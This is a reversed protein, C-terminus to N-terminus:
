EDLFILRARARTWAVYQLNREQEQQWDQRAWRAPILDPRLIAVQPWERGKAKHITSLTLRGVISDGFLRDLADKLGELTLEAEGLHDIITEICDVRDNIAEAKAPQERERYKQSERRRYEELKRGLDDLSGPRLRDVLQQLGTGIDRGLLQCPVGAAILQYALTVLPANNRCLVADAPTLQQQAQRVTLHEVSGALADPAPEIMPVLAQAYEVISRACRYCISLPLSVAQWREQILEIADHSAGTFGYIAQHPDGVALVRGNPALSAVLMARRVPNTDQAEDVFVAAHQRLPLRWLAPLYLQDDFDILFNRDAAETSQVLLTRALEIAEEEEGQELFLDHHAILDKWAQPEDPTLAGIGQGRALSVLRILFGDYTRRDAFSLYQRTLQRLKGSVTDLGKLGWHRKLAQYGASHFTSASVNPLGLPQIRAKLEAAISANFAFLQATEEVPLHTLAHLLTTTKGSGAVAIVVASGDGAEVFDYIAQQYTSPVLTSSTSTSATPIM